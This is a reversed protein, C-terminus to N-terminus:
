TIEEKEKNNKDIEKREIKRDKKREIRRINEKKRKDKTCPAKMCWLTNGYMFIM